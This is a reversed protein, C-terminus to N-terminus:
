ESLLSSSSSRGAHSTTQSVTNNALVCTCLMATPLTTRRRIRPADKEATLENQEIATFRHLVRYSSSAWKFLLGTAYKTRDAGMGGEEDREPEEEIAASSGGAQLSCILTLTPLSPSLSRLDSYIFSRSGSIFHIIIKDMKLQLRQVRGTVSRWLWVRIYSTPLLWLLLYVISLNNSPRGDSHINRWCTIVNMIIILLSREERISRPHDCQDIGKTNSQETNTPHFNSSRM